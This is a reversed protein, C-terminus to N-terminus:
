MYGDLYLETGVGSYVGFNGYRSFLDRSFVACADVYSLEEDEWTHSLITYEPIKPENFEEFFMRHEDQVNILRMRVSSLFSNGRFIYKIRKITNFILDLFSSGSAASANIISTRTPLAFSGNRQKAENCLRLWM